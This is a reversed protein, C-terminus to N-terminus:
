SYHLLHEYYDRLEHTTIKLEPKGIHYDLHISQKKPSFFGGLLGKLRNKPNKKKKKTKKLSQM